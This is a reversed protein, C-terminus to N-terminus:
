RRGGRGFGGPRRERPPGDRHGGQGGGPRGGGGEYESGPKLVAKRSLKIKGMNDIELVKVEIEDGEHVVDTTKNVRTEALQSIHCLGEKGPLIEIFAGFEVCSVVKGKYIKGVEAEASVYEVMKKAAEVNAADLGSIYVSGDDEVEIDAGTEEQIKRINKGGPGILAGIKDIPIMVKFMRPAFPSLAPRPSPLAKDMEGLIHLRGRQAQMLAEHLIKSPIAAIKTDLQFATIGRRTGAVKFDMDGLHDELGMIDSLVAHGKEEWILGMAIGACAGKMPVGGDFLSLSGGCISAMSSSGNSELIDSVVRITYPFEDESPLLPLLARRALAGHGIERRSQGREPKVEGTSFGPFNYHLLFREKFEGELADIIQMDAPTGLTATALAQTQGRTFVSSGHTRPLVGIHCTIPRIQDTKRGDARVGEEIVLRRSEKYLIDELQYDIVGESSPFKEALAKQTEAKLASWQNEREEKPLFGKLIARAKPQAADWVAKKLDENVPAPVLARKPKGLKKQLELQLDCLKVIEAKALEIAQIMTEESVESGGGEVMLVGQKSGSVVLELDLQEREEFSPFLIFRDGLKGIRVGAVPGDWPADSLLIAASTATIGLVDSDNLGDHSWVQMQVQTEFNWGEPFLPRVSRDSLRSSLIEKEKPRGERRFWGGPIKGAAYTRERYDVTLPVFSVAKPTKSVTCAGLVVTDGLQVTASGNAQKALFGSELIFDKDGVRQLLRTTNPTEM